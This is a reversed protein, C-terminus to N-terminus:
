FSLAALEREVAGRYSSGFLRLHVLWPWLRYLPQREHWGEEPDLAAFFSEPPHDFLTLMAWDVERHGYYCAPDILVAQEGSWIINGGWLDGHLLSIPPAHPLLDEISHALCEIRRALSEDIHPCHCLLRNEAWFLPWSDNRTNGIAVPGFAYDQDWGCAEPTPQHLHRLTEALTRWRDGSPAAEIDDMVLWGDGNYFVLPAPTGTEAIARLMEGEALVLPGSKAVIHRGDALTLRTAGSIDGGALRASETVPSGLAPEIWDFGQRM